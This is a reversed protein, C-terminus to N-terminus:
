SNLADIFLWYIFIVWASNFRVSTRWFQGNSGNNVYCLVSALVTIQYKGPKRRSSWLVPPSPAPVTTRNGAPSALKVGIWSGACCFLFMRVSDNRFYSPSVHWQIKVSCSVDPVLLPCSMSPPSHWKQLSHCGSFIHHVSLEEWWSSGPKLALLEHIHTPNRPDWSHAARRLNVAYPFKNINLISQIKLQKPVGNWSCLSHLTSHIITYSLLSSNLLLRYYGTQANHGYNPASVSFIV